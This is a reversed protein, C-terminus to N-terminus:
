LIRSLAEEIEAEYREFEAHYTNLLDHLQSLYRRAFADGAADPWQNARLTEVDGVSNRLRSLEAMVIM